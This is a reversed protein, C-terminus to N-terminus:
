GQGVSTGVRQDIVAKLLLEEFFAGEGSLFARVDGESGGLEDGGPVAKGEVSGAFSGVDRGGFERGIGESDGDPAANVFAGAVTAQDAREFVIAVVFFSPAEAVILGVEHDSKGGGFRVIAIAPGDDEAGALRKLGVGEGVEGGTVVAFDEGEEDVTFLVGGGVGDSAGDDIGFVGLEGDGPITILVFVVRETTLENGGSDILVDGGFFADGVLEAVVGFEDVGGGLIEGGGARQLGDNKGIEM